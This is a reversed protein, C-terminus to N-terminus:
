GGLHAVDALQRALRRREIEQPPADQLITHQGVVAIRLVEELWHTGDVEPVDEM